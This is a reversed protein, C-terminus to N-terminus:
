RVRITVAKIGPTEDETLRILPGSGPNWAGQLAASPPERLRRWKELRDPTDGVVVEQIGVVGLPGGGAAELRGTNAQREANAKEADAEEMVSFGLNDAALGTVEVFVLDAQGDSPTWSSPEKHTIGRQGLELSSSKATSYPNFTLGHFHVPPTQPRDSRHGTPELYANGVWFGTYTNAGYKSPGYILPLQLEDRLLRLVSEYDRDDSTRISVTHLRSVVPQLYLGQDAYHPGASTLWDDTKESAEPRIVVVLDSEAWM